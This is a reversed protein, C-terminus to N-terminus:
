VKGYEQKVLFNQLKRHLCVEGLSVIVQCDECFHTSWLLPMKLFSVNEM